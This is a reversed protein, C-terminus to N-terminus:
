KSTSTVLSEVSLLRSKYLKGFERHLYEWWLYVCPYNLLQEHCKQFKLLQTKHALVLLSLMAPRELELVHSYLSKTVKRESQNRFYTSSLIFIFYLGHRGESANQDLDPSLALVKSIILELLILVKNLIDAQIDLLSILKVVDLILKKSKRGFTYQIEGIKGDWYIVKWETRM